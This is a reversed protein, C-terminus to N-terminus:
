RSTFLALLVLLVALGQWAVRRFMFEQAQGAESEGGHAMSSIGSALSYAAMAAAALIFLTMADM